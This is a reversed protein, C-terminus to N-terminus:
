GKSQKSRRGRDNQILTFGPRIYPVWVFRDGYIEEAIERGNDACCLGIIADPHTHDVHKYPLFAHLLTEISARPHKSDIMCNVLYAVMEEDSM